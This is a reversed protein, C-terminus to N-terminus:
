LSGSVMLAWILSCSRAVMTASILGRPQMMAPPLFRRLSSSSSGRVGFCIRWRAWRLSRRRMLRSRPLMLGYGTASLELKRDGEVEWIQSIREGDTLIQAWFDEEENGLVIMGGFTAHGDQGSRLGLGVVESVM